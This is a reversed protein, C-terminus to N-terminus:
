NVKATFRIFGYSAAPAGPGTSKTATGINVVVAGKGNNTATCAADFPGPNAIFRGQDGDVIDTLDTPASSGIALKLTSGVYTSNGPVFDCLKFNAADRGGDSLFYITYEVEDNPRADNRNIAGQLFPSFNTTTGPGPDLTATVLAPLNPWNVANDDASGAGTTVDIYTLPLINVGGRNIATIRKVLHLNPTSSASSTVVLNAAAATGNGANATSVTFGPNTHTTATPSTSAVNVTLDCSGSAPITGGALSLSTGSNAAGVTGSCGSGTITAGPSATNTLNAPYSDTFSAGTIAATNPNTITIKIVSTGGISITSPIFVKTVTPQALVSLASSAGVSNSGGSTSIAGTTLNNTYNGAISSTVYVRVFCTGPTAGSAAPITGGSLAVSNGGAAATVTGGCTSAGAPTSANTLGSPYTDTFSASTLASTTPNSLTIMLLSFDNTAISTPSFSKAVSVSGVSLTASAAATNAGSSSTLAGAALTNTYSGATGSRVNVTVTCTGPTVGIAAPITGNALAISGSGAAATVAGGTCTTVGSPTTANVLNTPYTDTFATNTAPTLNPNSLTITLVSNGAGTSTGVSNPSFDKAVTPSGTVVLTSSAGSTNSGIGVTNIYSGPTASRVKITVTCTSGPPLTGSTLAVSNGGAAGTANGGGGCTTSAAPIPSNVLGPPYTDTFTVKNVATSLPNTLTITLTSDTNAAVPNPSFSKAISPESVSLTASAALGDDTTATSVPSTTNTYVGQTSSTVQVTIACSGNAPITGGSLGISNGGASGGTRTGSCSNTVAPTITNVLGSPYTDSFSVGTLASANANNLTITLISTGLSARIASATFTKQVTPPALVVTTQAASNNSAVPDSTDSQVRATNTASIASAPATVNITFNALAGNAFSSIGNTCSVTGNSGVAPTTCSFGIPVSISQFVIGAPLPDSVVVNTASQPGNNTVQLTYSFNNSAKVTAPATKTVALDAFKPMSAFDAATFSIGSVSTSAGFSPDTPNSNLTVLRSATAYLKGDKGFALSPASTGGISGSNIVTLAPPSAPAPTPPLSVSSTDYTQLTTGAVVYLLNPNTPSFAMDGGGVGSLTARLSAKGYNASTPNTDIVYLNNVDSAFLVGDARFALRAPDALGSVSQVVVISPISASPDFTQTSVNIFWLKGDIPSRALNNVPPFPIVSANSGTGTTVDISLLTGNSIGYLTNDPVYVQARVATTLIFSAFVSLFLVLRARVSTVWCVWFPLVLRTFRFNPKLLM